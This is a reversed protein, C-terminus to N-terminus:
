PLSVFSLRRSYRRLLRISVVLIMMPIVFLQLSAYIWNEATFIPIGCAMSGSEFTQFYKGGTTVIFVVIALLWVAAVSASIM